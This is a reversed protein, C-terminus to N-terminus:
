LQPEATEVLPPMAEDDEQAAKGEVEVLEERTRRENLHEVLSEEGLCFM